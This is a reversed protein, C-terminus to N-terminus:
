RWRSRRSVKHEGSLKMLATPDGGAERHGIDYGEIWQKFEAVDDTM